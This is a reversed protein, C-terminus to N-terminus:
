DPESCVAGWALKAGWIDGVDGAVEEVLVVRGVVIDLPDLDVVGGDARAGDEPLSGRRRIEVV